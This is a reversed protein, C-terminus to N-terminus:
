HEAGEKRLLRHAIVRRGFLGVGLAIGPEEMQHQLLPDVQRWGLELGAKCRQGVILLGHALSQSSRFGRETAETSSRGSKTSFVLAARRRPREQTIRTGLVRRAR